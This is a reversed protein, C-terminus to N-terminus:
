RVGYVFNLEFHILFWFMLARLILSSSSFMISVSRLTCKTIIRQIHCWLYPYAILLIPLFFLYVPSCWFRFSRHRLPCQQFVIQKQKQPVKPKLMAALKWILTVCATLFINCFQIISSIFNCFDRPCVCLSTCGHILQVCKRKWRETIAGLAQGQAPWSIIRLEKTTSTEFEVELIHLM